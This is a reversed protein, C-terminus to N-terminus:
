LKALFKEYEAEINEIINTYMEGKYFVGILSEYIFPLQEKIFEEFRKQSMNGFSLSEYEVMKTGDQFQYLIKYKGQLHKLFQHFYKEPVKKQFQAPLYGYVFNLLSFYCRHFAVDRATVEQLSIVEGRTCSESLEKARENAPIFGGGMYVFDVLQNFTKDTM